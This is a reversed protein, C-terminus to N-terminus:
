LKNTWKTLFGMILLLMKMWNPLLSFSSAFFYKTPTRGLPFHFFLCSSKTSHEAQLCPAQALAPKFSSCIITKKKRKEWLHSVLDFLQYLLDGVWGGGGAGGDGFIKFVKDYCFQHLIL